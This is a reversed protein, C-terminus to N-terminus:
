DAWVLAIGANNATVNAALKPEASGTDVGGL